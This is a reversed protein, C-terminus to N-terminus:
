TERNKILKVGDIAVWQEHDEVSATKEPDTCIGEAMHTFDEKIRATEAKEAKIKAEYKEEAIIKNLGSLSKQHDLDQTDRGLETAKKDMRYQNIMAGISVANAAIAIGGIIPSSFAMCLVLGAIFVIGGGLGVKNNIALKKQVQALEKEEAQLKEDCSAITRDLTDIHKKMEEASM